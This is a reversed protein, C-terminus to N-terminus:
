VPQVKTEIGFFRKANETTQAAIEEADVGRLEAIKEAVYRVYAPTNREGRHPTPALYPSDTEIVLHSIPVVKAVEQTKKANKFTVTGGLALYYGKELLREATEVSGSYCHFLCKAEPYEFIIDLTDKTAERTHIILPLNVEISLEIQKRFVEKQIDRPSFDYHYDLGAEGIAVVKRQTTLTKLVEKTKPGWEKASHPHVGVAAYIFSHERALAAARISDEESAACEIMYAIGNSPLERILKERDEDYRGDILHAHTDFLEM